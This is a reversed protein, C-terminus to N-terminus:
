LLYLIGFGASPLLIKLAPIKKLISINISQLLFQLYISNIKNMKTNRQYFDKVM